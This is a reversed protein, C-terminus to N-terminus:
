RRLHANITLHRSDLTNLLIVVILSKGAGTGGVVVIRCSPPDCDSRVVSPLEGSCRSHELCNRYGRVTALSKVANVPKAFAVRVFEDLTDDDLIALFLGDPQLAKWVTPEVVLGAHAEMVQALVDSSTYSPDLELRNDIATLRSAVKSAVLRSLDVKGPQGTLQFVDVIEDVTMKVLISPDIEDETLIAELSQQLECRMTDLDTANVGPLHLGCLGLIDALWEALQASDASSPFSMLLSPTSSNPLTYVQQEFGAFEPFAFPLVPADSDILKEFSDQAPLQTPWLMQTCKKMEEVAADVHEDGLVTVRARLAATLKSM